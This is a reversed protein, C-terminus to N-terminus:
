KNIGNLISVKQDNIIELVQTKGGYYKSMGTDVRWVKKDCASNIGHIQVTHAVVMRELGMKDLTENLLECGHKTTNKSYVRSWLPGNSDYVLRPAKAKGQMWLSIEQKMKEVGYDAYQPEVGGHVFLTKGIVVVTNHTALIKAYAGGPRFAIVRGRLYKPFKRVQRDRRYQARNYFHNFKTAGGRTTYGFDLSVNKTEHNGNLTIVRGGAAM